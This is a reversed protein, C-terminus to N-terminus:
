ILNLICLLNLMEWELFPIEKYTSSDFTKLM